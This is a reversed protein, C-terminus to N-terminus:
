LMGNKMKKWLSGLMSESGLYFQPFIVAENVNIQLHFLHIYFSKFYKWKVPFSVIACYPFSTVIICHSKLKSLKSHDKWM